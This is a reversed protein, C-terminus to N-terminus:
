GGKKANFSRNSQLNSMLLDTRTRLYCHNLSCHFDHRHLQLFPKNVKLIPEFNTVLAGVVLDDIKMLNEVPNPMVSDTHMM